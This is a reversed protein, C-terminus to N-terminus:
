LPKRATLGLMHDRDGKWQFRKISVVDLGIRKCIAALKNESYCNVHFQGVGNQSGYLTATLYGWRNKQSYTHTGFWHQSMIAEQDNRYFDKWDDEAALWQRAAMEFDVTSLYLLGGPKLIRMIEFFFRPEDIFPLHEILGESRVEEVSHDEYPLNFIDHQEVILDESFTQNPYRLRIQELTDMDINIYDELPRGGCGLNLRIELKKNM